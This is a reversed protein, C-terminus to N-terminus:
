IIYSFFFVKSENLIQQVEFGGVTNAVIKSSGGNKKLLLLAFCPPLVEARWLQQGHHPGSTFRWALALRGGAGGAVPLPGVSEQQKNRKLCQEESKPFGLWLFGDSCYFFLCLRADETPKSFGFGCPSVNRSKDLKKKKKERLREGAGHGLGVACM